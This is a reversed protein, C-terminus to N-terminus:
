QGMIPPQQESDYKDMIEDEYAFDVNHGLKGPTFETGKIGRKEIWWQFTHRLGEEMNFQPCFGFDAKAKSIDYFVSQEWRYPFVGTKGISRIVHPEIFVKRAEQGIVKAITDVYGKISIAEGSAINYIQGLTRTDQAAAIYARALDDVHTFHLFTGGKGPILVRRRQLLRVFYSGEREDMWNEPGYIVPCRFITVPFGKEKFMTVLYQECQVKEAVYAGLGAKTTEPSITPFTEMVPLLESVAYVGCTSQFLYHKIRGSYLEVLPELNRIQYGTMDYILDFEQDQLVSRAEDTDRRDAYLRKVGSPLEAQTKGRNLITVDNKQVILMRLLRLGVFRTGGIILVRM